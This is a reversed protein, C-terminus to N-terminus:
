VAKTKHGRVAYFFIYVYCLVPLIFAHQVGIRDALFGQVVPIIAGGVIATCLIGSGKSLNKGLGELALSFITPFMVSNFLGVALIATMAVYHKTLMSILVLCGAAVANFALVKAPMIKKQLYSGVFRGIMAGAWYLAVFQGVTKISLDLNIAPSSLYNVLFSGISVEAGVYIFIGVAGLLLPKHSWVSKTNEETVDLDEKKDKEFSRIDPLEIVLFFFAIVLLVIGLWIYPVQVVKAQLLTYLQTEAPSKPHFNTIIKAAAGLILISGVYPAITTGLSNFAQALNLRSSATKSSGLVNVYPNAAVQLTAVGAALIFLAILFVYYNRIDAAPYFLFCGITMTILGLVIGFRYGIRRIVGGAPISVIAYAVFFAFQSMMAQAYNLNFLQKLHPILIDNLCTIFGWMFFLTMLVALPSKYTKNTGLGNSLTSASSDIM